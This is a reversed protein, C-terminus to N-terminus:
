KSEGKREDCIKKIEPTIGFFDDVYSERAKVAEPDNSFLWEMEKPIRIGTTQTTTM